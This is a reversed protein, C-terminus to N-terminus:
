QANPYGTTWSAFTYQTFSLAKQFSFLSQM